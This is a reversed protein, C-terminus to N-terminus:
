RIRRYVTCTPGRFLERFEETELRSRHHMVQPILKEMNETEEPTPRYDIMVDWKRGTYYGMTDDQVVRDFGLWFAFFSPAMITGQAPMLPRVISNIQAYERGRQRLTAGRRLTTATGLVLLVAIALAAIARKWGGTRLWGAYFAAACAALYPIAHILYFPNKYNFFTLLFLPILALLVLLRTGGRLALGVLGGMLIVVASLKLWAFPSSAETPGYYVRYRDIEALVGELPHLFYYFRASSNSAIQARFAGVDQAIYLAYGAGMLVYPIAILVLYYPRWTAGVGNRLKTRLEYGILIFLGVVAITGNPHTSVSWSGLLNSMLLASALHRRRLVLFVAQAGLGLALCLMDMRGKGGFETLVLDFAVLVVALAAVYADSILEVVIAFLSVLVSMGAIASILRMQLLGFGLLKYWLAQVVFHFPLAWYTHTEIGILRSHLFYGYPDLVLTGLNGHHILDYAPSAFWAEDGDPPCNLAIVLVLCLYVCCASVLLMGPRPFRSLRAPM